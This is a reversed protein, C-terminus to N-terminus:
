RRQYTLHIVFTGGLRRKSVDGMKESINRKCWRSALVERDVILIESELHTFCCCFGIRIYM